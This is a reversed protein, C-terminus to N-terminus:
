GTLAYGVTEKNEKIRWLVSRGRRVNDKQHMELEEAMEMFINDLDLIHRGIVGPREKLAAGNAFNARFTKDFAIFPQDFCEAIELLRTDEKLIIEPAVNAEKKNKGKIIYITGCVSGVGALLAVFFSAILGGFLGWSYSRAPSFDIFAAGLIKDGIKIPSSLRYIDGQELVIAEGGLTKKVVEDSRADEHFREPPASILGSLNTVFARKVGSMKEADGISYETDESLKAPLANTAALLQVFSIGKNLAETKLAKRGSLYMVLVSSVFTVLLFAGVIFALQYRWELREFRGAVSVLRPKIPELYKILRQKM